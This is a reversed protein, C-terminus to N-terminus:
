FSDTTLVVVSGPSEVGPDDEATVYVKVPKATSVTTISAKKAKSFMEGSIHIQGINKTGNEKTDIWVVYANKPPTLKKSDALNNISVDINYNGNKDKKVKVEGEAAPAVPSTNFHVKQASSSFSLYVVTVASLLFFKLARQLNTKM